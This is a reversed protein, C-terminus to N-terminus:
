HKRAQRYTNSRFSKAARRHPFHQAKGLVRASTVGVGPTDLSTHLLRMFLFPKRRKSHTRMGADSLFLSSNPVLFM